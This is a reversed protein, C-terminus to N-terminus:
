VEKKTVTKAKKKAAKLEEQKVVIAEAILDVDSKSMRRKGKRYDSIEWIGVGIQVALSGVIGIIGLKTSTRMFDEKEIVRYHFINNM